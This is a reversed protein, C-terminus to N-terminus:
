IVIKKVVKKKEIKVKERAKADSIRQLYSNYVVVEAVLVLIGFFLSILVRYHLAMGSSSGTWYWLAFSVSVVSVLINFVTTVQEKLERNIQAPTLPKEEDECSGLGGNDRVLRQYDKEQHQLRLQELHQRFEPTYNSRPFKKPKFQFDMPKLLNSLSIRNQWHEEYMKILAEISICGKKLIKELDTNEDHRSRIEQIDQKLQDNLKIEFM